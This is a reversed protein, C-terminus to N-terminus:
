QISWPGRTEVLPQSLATNIGACEGEGIKNVAAPQGLQEAQPGGLNVEDEPQYCCASEARFSSRGWNHAFTQHVWKPMMKRHLFLSTLKCLGGGGGGSPGFTQTMKGPESQAAPGFVAVCITPSCRSFVHTM